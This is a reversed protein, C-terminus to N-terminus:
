GLMEDLIALAVVSEIAPVARPCVCADHRGGVSVTVNENRELDVTRQPLAISPTPRFVATLVIPEGNSIGGNIGGSDNKEFYIKKGDTRLPDNAESGFKDSFRRGAGFEVAKVAPVAFALSSIKSELGGFLADGLGVPAGLAVCGVEGGVSDGSRACWGILSAMEKARSLAPFGEAARKLEEEGYIGDRYDGGVVNGVKIVYGYIRVGSLALYQKAIGGAVCLPATMRGSFAGGGSFDKIGYKLYAAYDAHSPRPKAYLADYDSKKVDKNEIIATFHGDIVGNDLGETFVVEDPEARATVLPGGGKRRALFAGLEAEDISIRPFGEATVGVAHSHSEGFLGVSVNKGKWISM